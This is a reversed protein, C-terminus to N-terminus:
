LSTVGKFKDEYFDIAYKYDGVINPHNKRFEEDSQIFEDILKLITNKYESLESEKKKYEEFSVIM